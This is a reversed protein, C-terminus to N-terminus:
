DWLSVSEADNRRLAVVTGRVRYAGISGRGARGECTVEAGGHFGLKHLRAAIDGGVAHIRGVEGVRLESLKRM